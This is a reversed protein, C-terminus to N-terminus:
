EEDENDDEVYYSGAFPWSDSYFALVLWLAILGCATEAVEPWTVTM